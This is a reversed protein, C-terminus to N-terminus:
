ACGCEGFASQLFAKVGEGGTIRLWLPGQAPTVELNFSFFPCCRREKEIFQVVREYQDATYRFGYGGEIETVEAADDRLLRVAADIHTARVEPELATLDCAIPIKEMTQTRMPYGGKRQAGFPM